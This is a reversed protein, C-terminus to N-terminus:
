RAKLVATVNSLQPGDQLIEQLLIPFFNPAFHKMKRLLKGIHM